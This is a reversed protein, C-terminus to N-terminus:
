VRRDYMISFNYFGGAAANTFNTGIAGGYITIVGDNVVVAGFGNAGNSAVCLTGNKPFAPRLSVPLTNAVIPAATMNDGVGSGEFELFILSGFEHATVWINKPGGDWGAFQMRFRYSVTGLRGDRDLSATTTRGSQMFWGDSLQTYYAHTVNADETFGSTTTPDLTRTPITNSYSDIAPFGVSM